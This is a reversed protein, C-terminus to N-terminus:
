YEGDRYDEFEDETFVNQSAYDPRPRNLLQGIYDCDGNKNRTRLLLEPTAKDGFWRDLKARKVAKCIQDIDYVSLWFSLNKAIM